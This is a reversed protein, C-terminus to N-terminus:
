RQRQFVQGSSGCRLYTRGADAHEARAGGEEVTGELRRRFPLVDGTRRTARASKGGAGDGGRSSGLLGLSGTAPRRLYAATAFLAIAVAISLPVYVCANGLADGM